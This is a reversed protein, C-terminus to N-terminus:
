FGRYNTKTYVVDNSYYDFTGGIADAEDDTLLTLGAVVADGAAVAKCLKVVDDRELRIVEGEPTALLEPRRSYMGYRTMRRLLEKCPGTAPVTAPQAYKVGLGWAFMENWGAVSVKDIVDEDPTVAGATDNTLNILLQASILDAFDASTLLAM